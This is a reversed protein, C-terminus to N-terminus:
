LPSRSFPFTQDWPYPALIKQAAHTPAGTPLPSTFSPALPTPLGASAGAPAWSGPSAAAGHASSAHRPAAGHSLPPFHEASPVFGPRPEVADGSAPGLGTSGHSVATDHIDIVRGSRLALGPPAPMTRDSDSWPVSVFSPRSRKPERWLCLAIARDM